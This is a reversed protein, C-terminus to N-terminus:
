EATIFGGSPAIKAMPEIVLFGATIFSWTFILCRIFTVIEHSWLTISPVTAADNRFERLVLKSFGARLATYLKRQQHPM